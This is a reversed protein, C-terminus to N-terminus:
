EKHREDTANRPTGVTLSLVLSGSLRQLLLSGDAFREALITAGPAIEIGLRRGDNVSTLNSGRRNFGNLFQDILVKL